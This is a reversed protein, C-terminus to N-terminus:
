IESKSTGVTCLFSVFVSLAAPSQAWAESSSEVVAWSPAVAGTREEGWWVQWRGGSRQRCGGSHTLDLVASQRQKQVGAPCRSGRSQARACCGEACRRRGVSESWRRGCGSRQRLVSDLYLTVQYRFLYKSTPELLGPESNSYQVILPGPSGIYQITKQSIKLTLILFSESESKENTM